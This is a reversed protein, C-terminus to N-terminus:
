GARGVKYVCGNKIRNERVCRLFQKVSLTEQNQPQEGIWIAQFMFGKARAAITELATALSATVSADFIWTACNQDAPGALLSCSCGHERAFHLAGTTPRDIKTVCLGSADSLARASVKKKETPIAIVEVCM